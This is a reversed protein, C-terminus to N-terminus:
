SVPILKDAMELRKNKENIPVVLTGTSLDASYPLKIIRHLDFGQKSKFHINDSLTGIKRSLKDMEKPSIEAIINEDSFGYVHFGKLGSYLIKPYYGESELFEAILKANELTKNYDNFVIGNPTVLYQRDQSDVDFVMALYPMPYGSGFYESVPNVMRALTYYIKVPIKYKHSIDLLEKKLKETPTYKATKTLKRRNGTWTGNYLFFRVHRKPLLRETWKPLQLKKYYGRPTEWDIELKFLQVDDPFSLNSAFSPAIVILRDFGLSTKKKIYFNIWDQNIQTYKVEVMVTRDQSVGDVETIYQSKFSYQVSHYFNLNLFKSLAQLARLEFWTNRSRIKRNDRYIIAVGKPKLKFRFLEHPKLSRPECNFENMIWTLINELDKEEFEQSIITKDIQVVLRM